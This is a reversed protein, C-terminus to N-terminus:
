IGVAELALLGAFYAGLRAGVAEGHKRRFYALAVAHDAERNALDHDLHYVMVDALHEITAGAQEARYGLELDEVGWRLGLQEDFGGLQQFLAKSLSLNGGTAAPWRPGGNALLRHLDSEFRSRRAHPAVTELLAGQSQVLETIRERLRDPLNACLNFPDAIKRLWPVNLITARGILPQTGLADHRTLTEPGILIDDDIFLLRQGQAQAAGTNRAVSRGGAAERVISRFPVAFTSQANELIQRTHDRSGDNVVIVECPFALRQTSTALVQLTLYLRTAKNHSPVIISLM